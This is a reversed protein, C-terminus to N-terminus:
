TLKVKIFIAPSSKLKPLGLGLQLHLLTDEITNAFSQLTEAIVPTFIKERKLISRTTKGTVHFSGMVSVGARGARFNKLFVM